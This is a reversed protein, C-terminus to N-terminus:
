IKRNYRSFHVGDTSARRALESAYLVVDVAAAVPASERKAFGRARERPGGPSLGKKGRSRVCSRGWLVRGRVRAVLYTGTAAM